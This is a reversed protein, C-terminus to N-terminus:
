GTHAVGDQQLVYRGYRQCLPVALLGGPGQMFISGSISNAVDPVKLNWDKAQQEFLTAGWTIVWDTLLCGPILALFVAHKKSWSWNLPDEPDKSPQPILVTKGDKTTELDHGPDGGSENGEASIGKTVIYAGSEEGTTKPKDQTVPDSM